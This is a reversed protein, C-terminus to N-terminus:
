FDWDARRLRRRRLRRLRGSRFGIGFERGCDATRGRDGLARSPMAPVFHARSAAGVGGGLGVFDFVARHRHRALPYDGGGFLEHAFDVFGFARDFEGARRYDGNRPRPDRGGARHGPDHRLISRLGRSFTMGTLANVQTQNVGDFRYEIPDEITMVNLRRTELRALSAYLTTTKGAGTPGTVLFVGHSRQTLRTVVDRVSAPMGLANLNFRAASNDLLRISIREGAATPITAVRMDIARGGIRISIRGDQPVRREAIDMQAMVKVRSALAPALTAKMDLADRMTGDVRLRVRLRSEYPEIHIDSARERAAEAILANLFRIVPADSVNELLDVPEDELSQSVSALSDAGGLDLDMEALNGRQSEYAEQLALDFEGEAVAEIAFPRGLFRRM